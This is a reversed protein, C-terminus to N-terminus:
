LLTTVYREFPILQVDVDFTTVTVTFEMLGPTIELLWVIQVPASPAGIDTEVEDVPRPTSVYWHCDDVVEAVVFKVFIVPWVPVEYSGGVKAVVVQYWYTVVDTRLPTEHEELVGTTEIVTILRLTPLIVELWVIQLPPSGTNNFALGTAVVLPVDSVYWHCSEKSLIVHVFMVPSIFAVKLGGISVVVV